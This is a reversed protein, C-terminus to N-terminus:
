KLTDSLTAAMAAPLTTIIIRKIAIMNNIGWPCKEIITLLIGVVIISLGYTAIVRKIYEFVHDKLVYRYFNYYIFLSIFSITILILLIINTVKLKEALLWVEETLGVPIALITAGVIIQLIDGLKLEVSLPAIVHHIIKGTADKVPTIKHLYGGIRKIISNNNVPYNNNANGTGTQFENM